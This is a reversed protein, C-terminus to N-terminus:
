VMRNQIQEYQTRGEQAKKKRYRAKAKGKRIDEKERLRGERVDKYYCNAVICAVICRGNRPLATYENDFEVHLNWVPVDAYYKLVRDIEEQSQSLSETLYYSRVGDEVGEVDGAVVYIKTRETWRHVLKFLTAITVQQEEKNATELKENKM